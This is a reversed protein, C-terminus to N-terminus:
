NKKCMFSVLLYLVLFLLFSYATGLSFIEVIYFLESDPMLLSFFPSFVAKPLTILVWEALPSPPQAHASVGGSLILVDIWWVVIGIPVAFILALIIFFYSKQFWCKESQM